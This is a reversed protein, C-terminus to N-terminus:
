GAGAGGGFGGAYRPWDTLLALRRRLVGPEGGGALREVPLGGGLPAGGRGAALGDPPAVGALLWAALPAVLRDPAEAVAPVAPRGDPVPVDRGLPVVVRGVPLRAPRRSRWRVAYWGDNKSRYRVGIM